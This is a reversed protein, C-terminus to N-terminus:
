ISDKWESLARLIARGNPDTILKNLAQILPQDYDKAYKLHSLSAESLGTIETFSEEELGLIYDSSVNLVKCLQILTDGRPYAKGAEWKEVQKRNAEGPKAGTIKDALEQQSLRALQRAIKIKNGTSEKGIM